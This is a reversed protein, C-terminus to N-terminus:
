DRTQRCLRYISIEQEYFGQMRVRDRVENCRFGSAVLRGLFREVVLRSRDALLITGDTELADGFISLLSDHFFYDYLIEAGVILDYRGLEGPQEWDLRRFAAKQVGNARANVDALQLADGVYDSFTIEAGLKGATIGVLGLGCGLELARRGEIGGLEQLYRSLAVAASTIEFWFSIRQGPKESRGVPIVMSLQLGGVSIVRTEVGSQAHGSTM